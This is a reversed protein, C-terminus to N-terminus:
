VCPNRTSLNSVVLCATKPTYRQFQTPVGDMPGGLLSMQSDIQGKEVEYLHNGGLMAPFKAGRSSCM